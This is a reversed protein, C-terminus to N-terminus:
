AKQCAEPLLYDDGDLFMIYEGRAIKLADNRATSVGRNTTTIIIFNDYKKYKDLIESSNDTSGDNVCICEIERLTQNHVSSLCMDLYLGVNYVPVIISVKIANEDM